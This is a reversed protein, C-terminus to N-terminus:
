AGSKVQLLAWAILIEGDSANNPDDICSSSNDVLDTAGALYGAERMLTRQTWHWLADFTDKDNAAVAFLM